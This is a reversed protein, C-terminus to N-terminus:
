WLKDFCYIIKLTAGYINLKTDFFDFPYNIHGGFHRFEYFPELRFLLQPCYKYTLPLEVRYQFEEKVLMKNDDFQPDHTVHNQIEAPYKLKFNIGGDIQSNYRMQSLFGGCVYSYRLQFHVPLPSPKVFNNSETSYGAGIFPTFSFRYGGKQQFTYGFRGEINKDIFKSKLKNGLKSKGHLHGEGYLADVAWYFKYRKIHEYGGRVGYIVGDQAAGGERKRNVHYIEPGLYFQNVLNNEECYCDPSPQWWCEAFSTTPLISSLLLLLITWIKM